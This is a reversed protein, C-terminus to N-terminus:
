LNISIYMFIINRSTINEPNGMSGNPNKIKFSIIIYIIFLAMKFLCQVGM